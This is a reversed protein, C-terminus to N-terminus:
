TGDPEDIAPLPSARSPRMEARREAGRAIFFLLAGVLTAVLGGGAAAMGGFIKAQIVDGKADSCPNFTQEREACEDMDNLGSVGVSIGAILLIPGVILLAAGLGKFIGAVISM